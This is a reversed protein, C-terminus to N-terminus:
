AGGKGLGMERAVARILDPWSAATSWRRSCKDILAEVDFASEAAFTSRLIDAGSEWTGADEVRRVVSLWWAEDRVVAPAPAAFRHANARLWREAYLGLWEHCQWGDALERGMAAFDPEASAAAPELHSGRRECALCRNDPPCKGEILAASEPGDARSSSRLPATTETTCPGLDGGSTGSAREGEVPLANVLLRLADRVRTYCSPGKLKALIADRDSKRISM